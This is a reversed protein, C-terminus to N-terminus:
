ASPTTRRYTITWFGGGCNGTPGVPTYGGLARADKSAVNPIDCCMAVRLLTRMDDMQTQTANAMQVVTPPNGNADMGPVCRFVGLQVRVGVVIGACRETLTIAQRPFPDVPFVSDLRIWAQGCSAAPVGDCSCHDMPVQAGPRIGCWCVPRGEEELAPCLCDLLSTLVPWAIEDSM